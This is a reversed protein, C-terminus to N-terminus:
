LDSTLIDRVQDDAIIGGIATHQWNDNSAILAGTSDYLELTPDALTNPIGYKSLEPGIVRLIVGKPKTGPITFAGIMVNYGTQAFARTSINALTSEPVAPATEAIVRFSTDGVLCVVVFLPLLLLKKM